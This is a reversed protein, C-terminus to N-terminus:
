KLLYKLGLTFTKFSIKMFCRAAYINSLKFTVILAGGKIEIKEQKIYRPLKAM